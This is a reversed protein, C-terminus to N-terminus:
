GSAIPVGVLAGAAQKYLGNLEVWAECNGVSADRVAVGTQVQVM